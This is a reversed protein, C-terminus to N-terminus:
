GGAGDADIVDDRPQERLARLDLHAQALLRAMEMADTMGREELVHHGAALAEGSRAWAIMSEAQERVADFLGDELEAAGATIQAMSADVAVTEETQTESAM